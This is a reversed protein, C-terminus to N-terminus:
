QDRVSRWSRVPRVALLLAALLGAHYTDQLDDHAGSLCLSLCGKLAYAEGPTAVYAEAFRYVFCSRQSFRALRRQGINDVDNYFAVARACTYFVRIREHSERPDCRAARRRNDTYM